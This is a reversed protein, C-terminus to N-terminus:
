GHKIKELVELIKEPSAPKVLREDFGSAVFSTKDSESGYATVAVILKNRSQARARLSQVLQLGDMSPMGIDLFFADFAEDEARRLAGLGDHEIAVRFGKVKLLEGLMEAADVNDDVILISVASPIVPQAQPSKQAHNSYDIEGSLRPLRITFECGKGLGQSQASVSGGHLEVLREVITLGMGLGGQARNLTSEAQVFLKFVDPLQQASIGIGDDEVGIVIHTGTADLRVAIRGNNPTFKVANILLNAIVQVLRKHDGDVYTPEPTLHVLLQHQHTDVLPQAQEIADAIVQKIDVQARSLEVLGNNVRSVDLLDDVLGTMHKAQRAIIISSKHIEDQSLNYQSLLEAAASIPALPNRLEHGLMALFEDKRRDAQVLKDAYLRRELVESDLTANTSALVQASALSTLFANKLAQLYVLLMMSLGLLAGMRGVYWGVTLRSGAIITLANDCMLAVLVIALCLHLKNRFGVFRWLVLLAAALILELAPAIGTTALGSFDEAMYLGPLWHGLAFVLLATAIIAMFLAMATNRVANQELADLLGPKRHHSWALYLVSVAPGLHWFFWLWTFSQDSGLLREDAVFAGKQTLCQM